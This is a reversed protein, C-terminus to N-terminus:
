LRGQQLIIYIDRACLNKPRFIGKPKAQRASITCEDSELKRDTDYLDTDYLLIRYPQQCSVRERGVSGGVGVHILSMAM